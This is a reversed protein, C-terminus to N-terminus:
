IRDKKILMNDIVDSKYQSRKTLYQYMMCLLESSRFCARAQIMKM